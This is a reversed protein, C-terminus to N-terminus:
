RRKRRHAIWSGGAVMLTLTAGLALGYRTWRQRTRQAVEAAVRPAEESTVCLKCDVTVTRPPDYMYADDRTCTAQMCTGPKGDDTYCATGLEKRYCGRADQPPMNAWATSALFLVMMLPFLHEM